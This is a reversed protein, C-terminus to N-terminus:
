GLTRFLMTKKEESYNARKPETFYKVLLSNDKGIGGEVENGAADTEVFTVNLVNEESNVEEPETVNGYRNLLREM